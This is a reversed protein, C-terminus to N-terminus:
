GEEGFGWGDAHGDFYEALAALDAETLTISECDPIMVKSVTVDWMDDEAEEATGVQFGRKKTDEAFAM